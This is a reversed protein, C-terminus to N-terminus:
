RPIDIVTRLCTKVGRSKMSFDVYVHKWFARIEGSHSYLWTKVLATGPQLLSPVRDVASSKVALLPLPGQFFPETKIASVFALFPNELLWPHLLPLSDYQPLMGVVDWLPRKDGGGVVSDQWPFM